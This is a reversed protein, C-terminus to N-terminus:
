FLGRIADAIADPLSSLAGTAVCVGGVALFILVLLLQLDEDV